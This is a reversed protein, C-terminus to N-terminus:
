SGIIAASTAEIGAKEAYEKLWAVNSEHLGCTDGIEQDLPYKDLDGLMEETYEVAAGSWPNLLTITEM